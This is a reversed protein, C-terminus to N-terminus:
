GVLAVFPDQTVMFGENQEGKERRSNIVCVHSLVSFTEASPKSYLDYKLEEQCLGATHARGLIPRKGGGWGRGPETLTMGPEM